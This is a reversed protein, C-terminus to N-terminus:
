SERCDPMAYKGRTMSPCRCCKPIDEFVMWYLVSQIDKFIHSEREERPMAYYDRFEDDWFYDLIRSISFLVHKPLPYYLDDADSTQVGPRRHLCILVLRALRLPWTRPSSAKGIQVGTFWKM